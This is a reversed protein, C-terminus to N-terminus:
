RPFPRVVMEEYQKSVRLMMFQSWNIWPRMHTVLTGKRQRCYVRYTFRHYILQRSPDIYLLTVKEFKLKVPKPNTATITQTIERGIAFAEAKTVGKLLVFM